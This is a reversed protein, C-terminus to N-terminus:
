PVGCALAEIVANPCAAHIESSFFFAAQQELEILRDRSIVGTFSVEADKGSDKLLSSIRNEADESTKGAAIMRVPRSFREALQIALEAAADLGFDMGYRFSGEALVFRIEGSFDPAQEAPRFQQIDTGNFIIKSPKSLKGYVSNWRQECFPSQYVIKSCVCRRYYAIALNAAESHVAYKLGSSRVRHIWNMGNLRHVVPIGTRRALLLRKLYKKPGGIVLFADIDERGADFHIDIEPSKESWTILNKQFTRPGGLSTAEPVLCISRKKM